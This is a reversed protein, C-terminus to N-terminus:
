EIPLLSFVVWNPRQEFGTVYGIKKVITRGTLKWNQHHMHLFDAPRPMNEDWEKLTVSDGAQFGRDNQRVEFTKRGEMVAQFYPPTLKLDHNM